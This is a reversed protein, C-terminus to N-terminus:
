DQFIVQSKEHRNEGQFLFIICRAVRALDKPKKILGIAVKVHSKHLFKQEKISTVTNLLHHLLEVSM